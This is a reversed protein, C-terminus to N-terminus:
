LGNPGVAVGITNELMMMSAFPAVRTAAGPAGLMRANATPAADIAVELPINEPVPFSVILFAYM